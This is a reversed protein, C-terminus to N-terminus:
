VGSVRFGPAQYVQRDRGPCGFCHTFHKESDKSFLELAITKCVEQPGPLEVWLSSHLEKKPLIIYDRLWLYTMVSFSSCHLRQTLGRVRLNFVRTGSAWM